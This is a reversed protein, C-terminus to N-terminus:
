SRNALLPQEEPEVTRTKLLYAVIHITFHSIDNRECLPHSIAAGNKFLKVKQTWLM